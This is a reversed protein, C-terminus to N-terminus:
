LAGLAQNRAAVFQNMMAVGSVHVRHALCMSFESSVDIAM